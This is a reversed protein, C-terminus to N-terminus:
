ASLGAARRAAGHDLFVQERVFEGRAVSLLLGWENDFVAGSSAGTGKMRGILLVRDGLDFLEQVEYALEGWDELFRHHFRIREERGRTGAASGLGGMQDPFISVCDEHFLAFAVDLDGRNHAAIAAQAAHRLIAQRLRSRPPLRHVARNVQVFAPRLGLLLRDEIGRVRREKPGVPQRVAEGSM